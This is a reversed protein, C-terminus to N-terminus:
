QQVEESAVGVALHESIREVIQEVGLDDVDVVFNAIERYLPEREAAMRELRGLAVQAGDALLPREEADADLRGVLVAPTARLWVVTGTSRLALRHAPDLVIGGGTAVVATPGDLTAALAVSEAARFASEGATAFIDAVSQGAAAVVERDVDVCRLGLREALLPAVTSKGTGSLGVLVVHARRETM